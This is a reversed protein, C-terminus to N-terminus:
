EMTTPNSGDVGVRIVYLTTFGSDTTTVWLQSVTTTVAANLTIPFALLLLLAPAFVSKLKYTPGM